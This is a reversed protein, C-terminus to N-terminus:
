RTEDKRRQEYIAYRPCIGGLNVARETTPKNATVSRRCDYYPCNPNDCLIEGLLM